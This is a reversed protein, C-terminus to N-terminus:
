HAETLTIQKQKAITNLMARIDAKDKGRVIWVDTVNAFQRGEPPTAKLFNGSEM